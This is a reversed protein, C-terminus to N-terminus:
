TDGEPEPVNEVTPGIQQAQTSTNTSAQHTPQETSPPNLQISPLQTSQPRQMTGLLSFVLNPNSPM